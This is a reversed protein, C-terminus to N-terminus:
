GQGPLYQGHWSDSAPKQWAGQRVEGLREVGNDFVITDPRVDGRLALERFATRDVAQVAGDAARFYVRSSDLLSTRREKEIETVEKFLKDISCGSPSAAEDAAVLIFQDDVMGSAAAVPAGHSSWGSVFRDMREQIHKKDDHDFPHPSAFIWVRATDPMEELKM